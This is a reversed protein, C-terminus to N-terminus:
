QSTSSVEQDNSVSFTDLFIVEGQIMKLDAAWFILRVYFDFELFWISNIMNNLMCFMM